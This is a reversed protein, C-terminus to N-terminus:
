SLSCLGRESTWGSGYHQVQIIDLATDGGEVKRFPLHHCRYVHAGVSIKQPPSTLASCANPHLIHLPMKEWSFLPNPPSDCAEGTPDPCLGTAWLLNPANKKGKLVTRHFL